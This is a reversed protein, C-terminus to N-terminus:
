PTICLTDIRISYSSTYYKPNKQRKCLSCFFHFLFFPLSFPTNVCPWIHLLSISKWHSLLFFISFPGFFAFSTSLSLSVVYLSFSGHFNCFPPFDIKHYKRFDCHSNVAFANYIHLMHLIWFSFKIFKSIKRWCVFGHVFPISVSPSYLVCYVKAGNWKMSSYCCLRCFVNRKSIWVRFHPYDSISFFDTASRVFDDM